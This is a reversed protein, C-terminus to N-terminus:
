RRRLTRLNLSMASDALSRLFGGLEDHRLVFGCKLDALGQGTAVCIAVDAEEFAPNDAISDGIYLVNGSINLLRKLEIVARGKDPTAVFVDLFPRPPDYAVSLGMRTLEATAAKVFGPHPASTKRWDVSFGLLGGSTSRKLEIELGSEDHRRIYRLGERLRGGAQSTAFTRGDSLVIELGSVCGWARAFPTRPRVFGCDKSTVIVVPVTSSLRLLQEEIEKPVSSAELSADHPALTGDYDSFVASIKL